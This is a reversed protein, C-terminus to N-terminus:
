GSEDEAMPGAAGRQFGEGSSVRCPEVPTPRARDDHAANGLEAAVCLSGRRRRAVPDAQARAPAGPVGGGFAARGARGTNVAPSERCAGTSCPGNFTTARAGIM